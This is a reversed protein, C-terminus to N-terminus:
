RPLICVFDCAFLIIKFIGETLSNYQCGKGGKGGSAAVFYNGIESKVERNVPIMAESEILTAAFMTQSACIAQAKGHM